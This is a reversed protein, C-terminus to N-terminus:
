WHIIVSGGGGSGGSSAGFGADGGYSAVAEVTGSRPNGSAHGARKIPATPDPTGGTGVGGGGVSLLVGAIPDTVITSGGSAGPAGAVGVDIVLVTGPTVTVIKRSYAGSGGSPGYADPLITGEGGGGGAGWAEIMLKTVGNPIVFSGSSTLEQIGNLGVGAIPTDSAVTGDPNIGTIFQGPPATGTVRLQVQSSDVVSGKVAGIALKGTTIAGDLVTGAITASLAVQALSATAANGDLAATIIGSSFNGGADRKVITGATNASTAANAAIEGAHVAAATSGGVASVVTTAQGGTVDGGLNGTFSSASGTINGIVNGTLIGNFAGSTIGGLTLGSALQANGVAGITIKATSVAGDAIKPTTIAGSVIGTAGIGTLASGDGQFATAKMTGTVDLKTTPANNGIGVNGETDIVLKATNLTGGRFGVNDIGVDTTGADLYWNKGGQKGLMQFTAGTGNEDFNRLQMTASYGGTRFASYRAIVQNGSQNLIFGNPIDVALPLICSLAGSKNAGKAAWAAFLPRFGDSGFWWEHALYYIRANTLNIKSFDVGASAVNVVIANAEPLTHTQVRLAVDNLAAVANITAANPSNQTTVGSIYIAQGPVLGSSDFLVASGGSFTVKIYGSGATDDVATIPLIADNAPYQYEMQMRFGEQEGDDKAGANSTDENLSWDFGRWSSRLIADSVPDALAGPQSVRFTQRGMVEGAVAGMLFQSGTQPTGAFKWGNSLGANTVDLKPGAPSVLGFRGTADINGLTGSTGGFTGIFKSATVTGALTLNPTLQASGVAGNAIQSEKLPQWSNNGIFQM